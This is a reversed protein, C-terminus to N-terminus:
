QEKLRYSFFALKRSDPSWSNVNMTGQGGFLKVITKSHSGDAPILRIEIDRNPPHDGPIVDDKGYAIYAVWRGDPSVHPFWCNANEKVMHAPNAGDVEMRWIQMLGSRVSNFWIYEGSPSYEPGDDLGPEDTLQTEEGGNVSITYIDYQGDREGCYALRKGDPSWGHLYSPGKETILTPNGGALPLMYIRATADENTFHSIAIQSNNSSLLHDNTCDIAFGTDIEGIEDTALEYAYLRGRSNFILYRGDRTWNPAQVVYDFERLITREGTQVDVTELISFTDREALWKRLTDIDMPFPLRSPAAKDPAEDDVSIQPITTILLSAAAMAIAGILFVLKLGSELDSASSQALGLIAPAAAIGIMQFFFIAGVAVGLLRRPVAFQAVLTNVTPIVGLGFGAVATILVYLWIPTNASLRWMAFLSLTVIPYSILYMWKYKKSRAILLGAPIGMFAVLVTYPTLMSGSVSPSVRMVEQVFIPSYAIIGVTGLFSLMGTGAATMFTRNFLVQPDLIPAEARKEVQIFSIWAIGSITLLIAGIGIQGPVGVRFFGIILTTTAVAMVIAGFWDIKPKINQANKPLALAVLVGAGLMLPIAGWYLGRWGTVSEAILGGLVPGILAAIGSPLNLLGTWKARESPDFLDGIAAFCFPVIPFHGISMFTAAVVLFVMSTSQTTLGLGVLFIGICLLLIARRSYIDSLKGFLLTSISGSLAPLAILWAFLAMGDFEAIMQPQAINRANIFLFSVFQTVFVATVGLVVKRKTEVSREIYVTKQQTM